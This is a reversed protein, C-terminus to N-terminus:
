YLYHYVIYDSNRGPSTYNLYNYWNLRHVTFFNKGNKTIINTSM